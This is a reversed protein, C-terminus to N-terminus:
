DNYDLFERYLGDGPAGSVAGTENEIKTSSKDIAENGTAGIGSIGSFLVLGVIIMAVLVIVQKM